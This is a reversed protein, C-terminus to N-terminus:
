SGDYREDEDDDDDEDGSGDDSGGYVKDPDPLM